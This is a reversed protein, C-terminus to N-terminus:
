QRLWEALVATVADPQEMTSMHGSHEIAVLTAHPAPVMDRIIEHREYPSWADQRGCILYTPCALSRLVPGADPRGLLAKIQAHFQEVSRREIMALIEDFVPTNLHDPHVMGPAWRTKGMERMGNSRAYDLLEMRRAKEKEGAPGPELAEYGTDLLALRRVRQPAQRMVELAVRGGMSHGAMSFTDYPSDKLVKAAMAPVSDLDHYEAVFSEARAALGNQQHKWVAADCMLGPLFLVQELTM